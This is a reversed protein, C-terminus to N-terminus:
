RSHATSIVRREMMKIRRAVDAETPYKHELPWGMDVTKSEDIDDAKRYTFTSAKKSGNGLIEFRGNIFRVRGKLYDWGEVPTIDALMMQELFEPCFKEEGMDAISIERQEGNETEFLVAKSRRDIKGELYEVCEELESYRNEEYSTYHIANEVVVNVKSQPDDAAPTKTKKGVSIVPDQLEFELYTIGEAAIRNGYSKYKYKENWEMCRFLSKMLGAASCRRMKGGNRWRLQGADNDDAKVCRVLIREKVPNYLVEITDSTGIKSYCPKNCQFGNRDFTIVPTDANSFFRARVPTISLSEAKESLEGRLRELEAQYLPEIKELVEYEEETVTLEEELDAQTIEYYPQIRDEVIDNDGTSVNEEESVYEPYISREPINVGYAHMSARLYDYYDFGKWGPVAIVYGRLPGSIYTRLVQLGKNWGGKNAERMKLALYFQERSIIPDHQDMAYYQAVERTNKKVTHELPDATYTKQALVDGCKKENELIGLVSSGTWNLGGEKIEGNTYIHTHKKRRLRVLTEAIDEPQHGSLYMEYILKVTDAEEEDIAISNVGVRKYGLSAPVTFLGSGYRQRYSAIIAESKKKSEQEAVMALVKIILDMNPDFTDIGETEFFICVPPTIKKMDRIIQISDGLNRSLRSISKTVILDFKGASADGLMMQLGPRNKTTTASRGEDSYLGILKWNPNNRVYKIYYKKQLNFSVAQSVSDTSVRCYVAVRKEQMMAPIIPSEIPRILHVKKMNADKLIRQEVDKKSEFQYGM